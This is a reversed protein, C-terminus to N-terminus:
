VFRPLHHALQRQWSSWDHPVDHGWLDLEHPIGKERLLAAFRVTAPLAGSADDYEWAGQGCVLLLFAARRIWDLHDGSFNAVYDQPNNFYFADGREGWGIKAMDYVGSLCMAQPFLDARKLAFNAAHFAGFSCGGLLIDLRGDSDGAILPVVDNVVYDEFKQHAQARAELPWDGRRWSHADYSDICYVKVRGAEVMPWAAGLLGNTEFDHAWGADSAFWLMPRGWHGHRIVRADGIALSHLGFEYGSM